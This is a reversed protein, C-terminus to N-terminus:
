EFNFVTDLDDDSVTFVTNHPPESQSTRRDTFPEDAKTFGAAKNFKREMRLVAMGLEGFDDGSFPAGTFAAIM